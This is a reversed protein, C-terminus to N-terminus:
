RAEGVLRRYHDAHRRAPERWSWDETMGRLRSAAHREAHDLHRVARHLADLVGLQSVELAVIGTGESPHRDVDVVTDHLGGVDTVVPMAGYRMAQMQALGCPEFRSPMLLLDAGGFLRHALAEDYGQRFAVVGPNAAAAAHLGSALGPDGEGLVALGSCLPALFPVCAAALDVGKQEALRTVMAAIPRDPHLGLEAALALRCAHKPQPDAPTFRRVLLADTGPDWRTTDIGNLIGVVRDGAERLLGDLGVGAEPTRIEEAYTPSVAVVLDALRIAGAMPNCDWGHRFAERHHPFAELWGANAWGQFGITHITLVTPPPAPLFALTAATHWDNLHIVDPRTATAIAAVAASFGFFRVDNDPWGGGENTVYPHPRAIGATSVLTVPGSGEVLGRRVSAPSAWLPVDLEARTEGSLPTRAYDPLVVELEVDDAIGPERLAAVLGAAAQGLGGVRAVPAFEATAFLVRIM